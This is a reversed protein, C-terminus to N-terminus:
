AVAAVELKNQQEVKHRIVILLAVALYFLAGIRHTQILESFFNNVFCAGIMMILGMTVKKYFPDKALHYTKQAHAFVVMLFIGYLLLAPWGQEVLMFLFYNHTTSREPNRSVWTKFSTVTYNKYYDYFNNPGVGTFPRDQSMKAAAIWRYFREMSSMDDGRFTAAVTEIFSGQTATTNMNPRLHFFNNNYVLFSVLAICVTYFAPMVWNVLKLRIAFAIMAAFVVALMAARAGAVYIAPLFFVIFFLLIWRLIKKGKSLQYAVVLLPFFMSLVTSHDVHNIYFPRVVVNSHWFNFGTFAHRIFAYVVFVLFPVAFLKFALVFDKKEKFIFIPLLLFSMWLWAQSLLYKVSVGLSESFIVAVILWLFQFALILTLPSRLFWKPITWIKKALLIILGIGFFVWMLQEDPFTTSFSGGGLSVEFSLPLSFILLFYVSRWDIIVWAAFLAVFPLALVIFNNTIAFAAVAALMIISGTILMSQTHKNMNTSNLAAQM